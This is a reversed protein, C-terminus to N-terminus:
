FAGSLGEIQTSLMRQPIMFLCLVGYRVSSEKCTESLVPGRVLFSDKEDSISLWKYLTTGM